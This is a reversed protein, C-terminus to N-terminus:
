TVDLLVVKVVFHFTAKKVTVLNVSLKNVKVYIDVNRETM